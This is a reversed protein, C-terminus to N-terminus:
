HAPQQSSSRSPGPFAKLQLGGEDCTRPRMRVHSQLEPLLVLHLAGTM